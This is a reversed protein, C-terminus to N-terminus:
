TEELERQRMMYNEFMIMMEEIKVDMTSSHRITMRRKIRSFENSCRMVKTVNGGWLSTTTDFSNGLAMYNETQWPGFKGGLTNKLYAVVREGKGAWSYGEIKLGTMTALRSAMDVLKANTAVKYSQSVISFRDNTDSRHIAKYEPAITGGSTVEKEVVDWTLDPVIESMKSSMRTRREQFSM